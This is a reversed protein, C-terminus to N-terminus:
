SEVVQIQQPKEGALFIEWMRKYAKELNKVFRPTDFLPKALLNEALKRRIAQLENPNGALRVALEEYEELSHTILEPLGIATLASSSMRSAFHNGKLTIVPVGAWLADSTTAAGSVIRTDLALDAVRLRGLHEDKPLKKALILREAKV